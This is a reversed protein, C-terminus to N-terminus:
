GAQIGTLGELSLTELMRNLSASRVLPKCVDRIFKLGDQADLRGAITEAHLYQLGVLFAKELEEDVSADASGRAQAVQRRLQTSMETSRQQTMIQMAHKDLFDLAFFFLKQQEETQEEDNSAIGKMATVIAPLNQLFQKEQSNYLDLKIVTLNEAVLCKLKDKDHSCSKVPDFKDPKQFCRQLTLEEPKCTICGMEQDRSRYDCFSPLGEQFFNATPPIITSLNADQSTKKGDNATPSTFSAPQLPPQGKPSCANALALVGLFMLFRRGIM